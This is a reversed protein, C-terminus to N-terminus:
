QSVVADALWGTSNFSQGSRLLEALPSNVSVNFDFPTGYLVDPNSGLLRIRVTIDGNLNGDAAVELIEFRFDELAEFALKATDNAAAAQESLAGSVKLTGGEGLGTLVANRVFADSASFELPFTGTLQGTGTIDKLNFTEALAGLDLKDANVRLANELGSFQWRAPAVSLWGGAFPWRATEIGIAETGFMQFTVEGDRLAVGPDIRGIRVRQGPPTSLAMVDDFDVTGSVGEVRGLAVTQFGLDKIVLRSEILPRGGTITVSAEGRVEGRANTLLGRLRDSLDAPQLGRPDFVLPSATVTGVGSISPLSLVMASDAVKLGSSALAIPGELSLRGGNLRLTQDTMMPEFVPDDGVAEVRVGKASGSGSFVGLQNSFSLDASAMDLTVPLLTGTARTPGLLVSARLGAGDSSVDLAASRARVRLGSQPTSFDQSVPGTAISAVLGGDILWDIQGDSLSVVGSSRGATYPLTLASFSLSGGPVGDRTHMLRGDPPCLMASIAGARVGGVVIADSTAGLCTADQTQWRWPDGATGAGSIAGYLSATEISVGGVTGALALAGEANLRRNQGDDVYHLGELAAGITDGDVTWGTVSATGIRAEMGYPGLLLTEVALDVTPFGGGALSVQGLLATEGPTRNLWPGRGLPQIFLDAGSQSLLRTPDRLKITWGGQSLEATGQLGLSFAALAAGAAQELREEHAPFGPINPLRAVLDGRFPEGLAVGDLIATGDLLVTDPGAVSVDGTFSAEAVKGQLDSLSAAGISIPGGLVDATRALEANVALSQASLAGQQWQAADLSLIASRIARRASDLSLIPIREIELAADISLADLAVADTFARELQGTLTMIRLDQEAGEGVELRTKLQDIQLDGLAAEIIEMDGVGSLVGDEVDLDLFASKLTLSSGPQALTAPRVAAEITLNSPDTADFAIDAELRGAITELDLRGESVTFRPLPRDSAGDRGLINELGYLDPVTGALRARVHPREVEVSEIRPAWVQPWSLTVEAAAIELPVAEATEVRIARAAAGSVGLETVVAECVLERDACWRRMYVEALSLRMAWLAIGALVSLVMLALLFWAATRMTPDNRRRSLAGAVMRSLVSMTCGPRSTAQWSCENGFNYNKM